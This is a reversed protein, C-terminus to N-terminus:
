ILSPDMKVERGSGFTPTLATSPRSHPYLLSLQLIFLETPLKEEREGREQLM